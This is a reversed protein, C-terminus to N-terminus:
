CGACLLAPLPDTVHRTLYIFTAVVIPLIFQLSHEWANHELTKLHPGVKEKGLLAALRTGEARQAEREGHLSM